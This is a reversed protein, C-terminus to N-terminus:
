NPWAPTVSLRSNPRVFLGHSRERIAPPDLPPEAAATAAPMTGNASPLSPPPEIRMGALQQPMKPKLGVNPRTGWSVPAVAKEMVAGKKCWPGMDRVTSSLTKINAAMCPGSPHSGNERGKGPMSQGNDASIFGNEWHRM